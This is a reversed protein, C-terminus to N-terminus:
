GIGLESLWGCRNWSHWPKGDKDIGFEAKKKNQLILSRTYEIPTKDKFKELLWGFLENIGYTTQAYIQPTDGGAADHIEYYYEEEVPSIGKIIWRGSWKNPYYAENDKFDDDGLFLGVLRAWDYEQIITVFNMFPIMNVLAKPVVEFKWPDIDIEVVGDAYVTVKDTKEVIAVGKRDDEEEEQDDEDDISVDRSTPSLINTIPTATTATADIEKRQYNEIVSDDVKFTILWTGDMSFKTDVIEIEDSLEKLVDKTKEIFDADRNGIEVFYTGDQNQGIEVIMIKNQQGLRFLDYAFELMKSEDEMKNVM